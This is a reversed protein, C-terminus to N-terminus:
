YETSPGFKELIYRFFLTLPAAVATFLLGAASAYPYNGLASASAGGLLIKFFYYGFTWTEVPAETGYFALTNPSGSFLTIFTIVAYVSITPYILPLTIHWFERFAGLGDLSGYEILDRPIRSMAGTWVVLGGAFGIWWQYFLLLPFSTKPNFLLSINSNIGLIAPFSFEAIYKFAIVWIISSLISPLFLIVVFFNNGPIKKHIMYSVIISVPMSVMSFLLFIFSNTIMTKFEHLFSFDTIVRAFNSFGANYVFAGGATDYRAFALIFSNLNVLITTWLFCVTPWFFISFLFIREQTKRKCINDSKKKRGFLVSLKVKADYLFGKGGSFGSHIKNNGM